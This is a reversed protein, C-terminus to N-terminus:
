EPPDLSQILLAITFGTCHKYIAVFWIGAGAITHLTCDFSQILLAISTGLAGAELLGSSFLRAFLSHGLSHDVSRSLSEWHTYCMM